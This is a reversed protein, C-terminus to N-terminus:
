SVCLLSKVFYSLPQKKDVHRPKTNQKQQSCKCTLKFNTITTKFKSFSSLLPLALFFLKNSKTLYNASTYKVSDHIRVEFSM